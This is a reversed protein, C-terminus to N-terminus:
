GRQKKITPGRNKRSSIWSQSTESRAKTALDVKEVISNVVERVRQKPCGIMLPSRRDMITDEPIQVLCIYAETESQIVRCILM